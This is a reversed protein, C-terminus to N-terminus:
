RSRLFRLGNIEVVDIADAPFHGGIRLIRDQRTIVPQHFEGGVSRIDIEDREVEIEFTHILNSLWEKAKLSQPEPHEYPDGDVDRVAGRLRVVLGVATEIVNGWPVRICEHDNGKYVEIQVGEDDWHTCLGMRGDEVAVAVGVSNSSENALEEFAERTMKM